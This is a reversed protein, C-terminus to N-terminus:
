GRQRKPAVSLNATAAPRGDPVNGARSRGAQAESLLEGALEGLTRVGDRYPQTM